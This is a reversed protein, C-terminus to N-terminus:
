DGGAKPYLSRVGTILFCIVLLIKLLPFTHFYFDSFYSNKNFYYNNNRLKIGETKIIFGLCFSNHQYKLGSHMYM